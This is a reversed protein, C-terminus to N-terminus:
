PTHNEVFWDILRRAISMRPPVPPLKDAAFWGAEIIELNDEQIDGGEYEATFAVMLSNPFPWPQSGFYRINKVTLNVEEFIERQACEELTEGPEVFGALVSFFKAKFGKNRALLIQNDKVVATIIAPSVRPYNILGCTPCIKAREERSDETKDGCKGCFQHERNWHVLQNARGATWVLTEDLTGFLRRVGTLAFGNAPIGDDPLEGAFCQRGDIAGLYLQRIPTLHHRELDALRPIAFNDNNLKTLLKEEYFVFWLSQASAHLPFKLDPVFQM